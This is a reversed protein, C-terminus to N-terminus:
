ILINQSVLSEHEFQAENSNQRSPLVQQKGLNLILGNFTPTLNEDFYTM